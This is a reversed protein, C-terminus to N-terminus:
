RPIHYLISIGSESRTRCDSGGAEGGCGGPQWSGVPCVRIGTSRALLSCSRVLLITKIIMYKWKLESWINYGTLLTDKVASGHVIPLRVVGCGSGGRCDCYGAGHKGGCLEVLLRQIPQPCHWISASFSEKKVSLQNAQLCDHPAQVFNCSSFTEPHDHTM